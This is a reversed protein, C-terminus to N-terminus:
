PAHSKRYETVWQMTMSGLDGIDRRQVERAVALGVVGILAAIVLVLMYIEMMGSRV